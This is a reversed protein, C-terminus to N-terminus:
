NGDHAPSRGTMPVILVGGSKVKTFLNFTKVTNRSLQDKIKTISLNPNKSLLSVIYGSVFATAQSTGTMTRYRNGPISSVIDEGYVAVDVSDHGWNSSRSLDDYKPSTGHKANAVVIINDLGYSAPYYKTDSGAQDLNHHENGAAVVVIIGKSKANELISKEQSSPLAGGGSYNIVRAGHNVAFELAKVSNEVNIQGPASEVYYRVPMLLACNTVHNIIGGIHTGHGHSDVPNQTNLSVDWGYFTDKHYPDQWLHNKIQEHSPDIGTDVVGVIIKNKCEAQASFLSLTISSIILVTLFRM